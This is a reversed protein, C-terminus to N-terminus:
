YEIICHLRLVGNFILVIKFVEPNKLKKNISTLSQCYADFKFTYKPTVQIMQCSIKSASQQCVNGRAGYGWFHSTM